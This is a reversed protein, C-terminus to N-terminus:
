EEEPMSEDITPMVSDDRVSMARSIQKDMEANIRTVFSQIAINDERSPTAWRYPQYSGGMYGRNEEVWYSEWCVMAGTDKNVGLYVIKDEECCPDGSDSHLRVSAVITYGANVANVKTIKNPEGRGYSTNENM